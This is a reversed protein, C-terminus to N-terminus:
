STFPIDVNVYYETHRQQQKLKENRKCNLWFCIYLVSRHSNKDVKYIFGLRKHGNVGTSNVRM